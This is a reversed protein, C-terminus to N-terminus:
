PKSTNNKQPLANLESTINRKFYISFQINTFMDIPNYHFKECKNHANNTYVIYELLNQSSM